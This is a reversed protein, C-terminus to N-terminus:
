GIASQEAVRVPDNFPMVVAGTGLRIRETRMALGSLLVFNSPIINGHRVFHHRVFWM